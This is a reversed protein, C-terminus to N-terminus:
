HPLSHVIIYVFEEFSRVVVVSIPHAYEAFIDYPRHLQRGEKGADM